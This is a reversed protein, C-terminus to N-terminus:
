WGYTSWFASIDVQHGELILVKEEEASSYVADGQLRLSIEQQHGAIMRRRRHVEHDVVEPDMALTSEQQVWHRYEDILEYLKSNIHDWYVDVWEDSHKVKLLVALDLLNNRAHCEAALESPSM